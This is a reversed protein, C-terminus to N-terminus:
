INNKLNFRLTKQLKAMTAVFKIKKRLLNGKESIVKHPSDKEVPEPKEDEDSNDNDHASPKLINCFMDSIKEVVFPISWTFIDM